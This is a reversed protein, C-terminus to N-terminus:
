KSRELWEKLAAKPVGRNILDRLLQRAERKRNLALLIDVKSVFFDVSASDRLIAEDWDFLAADYMKLEAEYGARAAYALASDPFFQVLLNLQDLARVKNGAKRNAMSGGLLAEFHKPVFSLVRDYDAIALDYRRLQNNAYARFFFAALNKPDQELVRGYEDIAYDWQNLELNVAAKRLRLDVSTPNQAIARGLVALSDRWQATTQAQLPQQPSLAALLAFLSILLKQYLRCDM